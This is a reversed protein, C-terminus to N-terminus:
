RTSCPTSEDRTAVIPRPSFTSWKGAFPRATVNRAQVDAPGPGATAVISTGGTVGTSGTGSTTGAGTDAGGGGFGLQARPKPQATMAPPAYEFKVLPSMRSTVWPPPAQSARKMPPVFENRPKSAAYTPVALEILVSPAVALLGARTDFPSSPFARTLM